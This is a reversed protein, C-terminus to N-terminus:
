GMLAAAIQGEEPCTPNKVANTRAVKSFDTCLRNLTSGWAVTNSAVTERVSDRDSRSLIDLLKGSSKVSRAFTHAQGSTLTPALEEFVAMVDDPIDSTVDGSGGVYFGSTYFSIFASLREEDLSSIKSAANPFIPNALASMAVRKDKSKFYQKVRPLPTLPDNAVIIRTECIHRGGLAVM